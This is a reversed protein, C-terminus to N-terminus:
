LMTASAQRRAGRDALSTDAFDIVPWADEGWRLSFASMASIFTPRSNLGGWPLRDDTNPHVTM